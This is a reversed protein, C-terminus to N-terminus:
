NNASSNPPPPPPPTVITGDMMLIVQKMTPRLDTETQVCWFGIKVMKELEELNVEAEGVVKKLEGAEYCRQVWDMLIIEDDPSTRTQDPKLLKSLGFDSIKASMSEDM